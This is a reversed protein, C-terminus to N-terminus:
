GSPATSGSSPSLGGPELGLAIMARAARRVEDAYARWTVEVWAGGRKHAYAVREPSTRARDLLRKPISDIAM